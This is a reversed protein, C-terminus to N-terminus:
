NVRSLLNGMYDCKETANIKSYDHGNYKDSGGRYM